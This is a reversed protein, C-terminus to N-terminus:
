SFTGRLATGHTGAIFLKNKTETISKVKPVTYVGGINRAILGTLDEHVWGGFGERRYIGTETLVYLVGDRAFIDVPISVGATQLSSDLIFPGNWFKEYDSSVGTIFALVGTKGLLYYVDLIEDYAASIVVDNFGAQVLKANLNRPYRHEGALPSALVPLERDTIFATNKTTSKDPCTLTFRDNLRCAKTVSGGSAPYGMGSGTGTMQAPVSGVASSIYFYIREEGPGLLNTILQYGASGSVLSSTLNTLDETKTIWSQGSRTLLFFFIGNAQAMDAFTGDKTVSGYIINQNIAFSNGDNTSYAFKRTDGLAGIAGDSERYAVRKIDSAGYITRLPEIVSLSGLQGKRVNGDAAIKRSAVLLLNRM